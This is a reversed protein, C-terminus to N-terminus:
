GAGETSSDTTEENLIGEQNNTPSTFYFYAGIALAAVVVFGIILGINSNM